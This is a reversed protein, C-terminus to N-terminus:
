PFYETVSQGGKSHTIISPRGESGWHIGWDRDELYEELYEPKVLCCYVGTDVEDVEGGRYIDIWGRDIFKKKIAAHQKDLSFIAEDM